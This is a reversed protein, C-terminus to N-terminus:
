ESDSSNDEDVDLMLLLGIEARQQEGGGLNEAQAPVPVKKKKNKRAEADGYRPRMVLEYLFSVNPLRKDGSRRLLMMLELWAAFARVYSDYRYLTGRFLLQFHHFVRVLVPEDSNMLQAYRRELDGLETVVYDHFPLRAVNVYYWTTCYDVMALQYLLPEPTTGDDARAAEGLLTGLRVHSRSLAENITRGRLARLLERPAISRNSNDIRYVEIEGPRLAWTCFNAIVYRSSENSGSDKEAAALWQRIRLARAEDVNLAAVIALDEELDSDVSVEADDRVDVLMFREFLVLDALMDVFTVTLYLLLVDNLVYTASCHQTRYYDVNHVAASEPVTMLRATRLLLAEVYAHLEAHYCLTPWACALAKVAGQLKSVTYQAIAGYEVCLTNEACFRYNQALQSAAQTRQERPASEVCCLLSRLLVPFVLQMRRSYAYFPEDADKMSAREEATAKLPLWYTRMLFEKLRVVDQCMTQYVSSWASAYVARQEDSPGNSNSSNDDDNDDDLTWELFLKQAVSLARLADDILPLLHPPATWENRANASALPKRDCLKDSAEQWQALIALLNDPTFPPPPVSAQAM